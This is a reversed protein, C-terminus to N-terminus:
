NRGAYFKDWADDIDEIPKTSVYGLVDALVLVKALWQPYIDRDRMYCAAMTVCFTYLAQVHEKEMM